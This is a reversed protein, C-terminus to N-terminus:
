VRTRKRGNKEDHFIFSFLINVNRRDSPKKEVEINTYSYLIKKFQKNFFLEFSFIQYFKQNYPQIMSKDVAVFLVFHDQTLSLHSHTMITKKTFIMKYRYILLHRRLSLQDM